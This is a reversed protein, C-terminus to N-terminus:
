SYLLPHVQTRGTVVKEVRRGNKKRNEEERKEGVLADAQCHLRKQPLNKKQLQYITTKKKQLLDGEREGQEVLRGDTNIIPWKPMPNKEARLILTGGTGINPAGM